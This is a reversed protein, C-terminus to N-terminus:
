LPYESSTEHDRLRLSFHLATRHRGNARHYHAFSWLYLGLLLSAIILFAAAILLAAARPLRFGFM